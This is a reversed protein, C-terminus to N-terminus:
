TVVLAGNNLMRWQAIPISFLRGPEICLMGNGFILLDHHFAELEMANRLWRDSYLTGRYDLPTRVPMISTSRVVLPMALLGGLFGRRNM